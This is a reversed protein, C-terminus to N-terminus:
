VARRQRELRAKTNRCAVEIKVNPDRTETYVTLAEVIRMRNQSYPVKEDLIMAKLSDRPIGMDDALQNGSMGAEALLGRLLQGLTYQGGRVTNKMAGSRKKAPDAMQFDRDISRKQEKDETDEFLMNFFKATNIGDPMAPQQVPEEHLADQKDEASLWARCEELIRIEEEAAKLRAELARYQSEYESLMREAASM